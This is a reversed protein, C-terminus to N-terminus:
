FLLNLFRFVSNHGLKLPEVEVVAKKEKKWNNKPQDTPRDYRFLTPPEVDVSRDSWKYM